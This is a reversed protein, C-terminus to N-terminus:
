ASQEVASTTVADAARTPLEVLFQAGCGEGGSAASITGGHLEVLHRAISLGIGLGTNRRTTSSDEQRFREFVHPLFSPSIGQGSDEVALRVRDDASSLRVEVRGGQPTFKIANHLLNWLVQQIRRADGNVTAAADMTTVLRVKKADAAPQLGQVTAHVVGGVDVSGVELQVHGSVLRNMDLLDDILRAQIRANRQIVELASRTDRVPKGSTLIDLWGLVMNMPTRLEHSLTALFEDKLRSQREAEDRAQRAALLSRERELEAHRQASIDRSVGLMRDHAHAEGRVVRGRDTVWVISGDPRMLRYETEYGGALLAAELQAEVRARDDQHLARFMRKGPGFAGPPFGFMAEPDTSWSMDGTALNREWAAIRGIEMAMRLREENERVGRHARLLASTRQQVRTELDQNARRLAEQIREREGIEAELAENLQALARTKRFVEIFVGIKSQLVRTNIPKTLYDVAGVDYGRLLDQEEVTHATLFLIPIDRSRKRGKILQALEIGGMGPMQIDLVIAAFDHKLLCLPAEDASGARVLSCGTPQLMVELADLNRPQDDVILVRADDDFGPGVPLAM